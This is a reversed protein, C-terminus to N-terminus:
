RRPKRAATGSCSASGCATMRAPRCSTARRTPTRFGSTTATRRSGCGTTHGLSCCIGAGAAGRGPGLEYILAFEVGHAQQLAQMEATTLRRSVEVGARGPLSEGAVVVDGAASSWVSRSDAAADGLGGTARAGPAARGVADRALVANLRAEAVAGQRTMADRALVADLRAEAAAGQRAAAGGLAKTVGRYVSTVFFVDLVASGAYFLARDYRGANVAAVAERASGVVPTLAGATSTPSGPLPAFLHDSWLSLATGLVEGSGVLRAREAPRGAPLMPDFLAQFRHDLTAWNTGALAARQDAPADKALGPFAALNKWTGDATGHCVACRYPLVQKSYPLGGPPQLGSPDTANTPSNGAYRYLTPDGAAFGAPDESLWRGAGPDYVRARNYQLGLTSDWERGTWAYRDLGAGATATIAGFPAYERTGTVAGSGDTVARVSGRIDTLYWGAQGAAVRALPQDIGGGFM